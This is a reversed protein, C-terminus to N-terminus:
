AAKRGRKGGSGEMNRIIEMLEDGLNEKAYRGPDEKMIRKIEEARSSMNTKVDTPVMAGEGYTDKASQILFRAVDVNNILKHAKGDPGTYYSQLIADRMDTPVHKDDNLYTDLLKIHPKFESIGLEARLTDSILEKDIKNTESVELAAAEQQAALTDAYWQTLRNVATQPLDAEHSAAKFGDLIPKDADTWKHGAIAPIEYADAKEPVGNAERWAVKDAESATEDPKGKGARIREQAAFGAVMYDGESKYRKLANLVSKERKEFDKVTLKEKLPKLIREALRERWKPEPKDADDKKDETKDADPKKDGDATDDTEDEDDVFDLLSDSDGDDSDDDAVKAKEDRGKDTAKDDAPADTKDVVKDSGKDTAASKDAVVKDETTTDAADKEPPM